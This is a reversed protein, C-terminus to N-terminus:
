YNMNLFPLGCIMPISVVGAAILLFFCLAIGTIGINIWGLVIGWNAMGLGTIRGGSALIDKKAINGMIIAAVAALLPLLFYSLIGAVLSLTALTSSQSGYFQPREDYQFSM